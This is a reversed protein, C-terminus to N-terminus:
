KHRKVPPLKMLERIHNYIQFEPASLMELPYPLMRHYSDSQTYYANPLQISGDGKEFIHLGYYHIREPCNDVQVYRNRFDYGQPRFTKVFLENEEEPEWYLQISKSIRVWINRTSRATVKRFVGPVFSNGNAVAILDGPQLGDWFSRHHHDYKPCDQKSM